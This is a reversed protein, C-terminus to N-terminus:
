DFFMQNFYVSKQNSMKVFKKGNENTKLKLVKEDLNSVFYLYLYNLFFKNIINLVFKVFNVEM